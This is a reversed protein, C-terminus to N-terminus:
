INLVRYIGLVLPNNGVATQSLIRCWDQTRPNLWIFQNIVDQGRVVHETGLDYRAHPSHSNKVTGPITPSFSFLETCLQRWWWTVVWFLIRWWQAYHSWRLVNLVVSKAIPFNEALLSMKCKFLPSNLHFIYVYAYVSHIFTYLRCM